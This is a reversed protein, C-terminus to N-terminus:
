RSLSLQFSEIAKIAFASEACSGEPTRESVDMVIFRDTRMRAARMAHFPDVELDLKVAIGLPNVLRQDSCPPLSGPEDPTTWTAMVPDPERRELNLGNIILMCGPIELKGFVPVSHSLERLRCKNHGGHSDRIIEPRTPTSHSEPNM